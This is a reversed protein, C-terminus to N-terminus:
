MFRINEPLFFTTKASHTDIKIAVTMKAANKLQSLTRNVVSERMAWELADKCSVVRSSAGLQFVSEKSPAGRHPRM